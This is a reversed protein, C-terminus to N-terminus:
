LDHGSYCSYIAGSCAPPCCATLEKVLNEKDITLGKQVLVNVVKDWQM